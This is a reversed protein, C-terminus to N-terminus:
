ARGTMFPRYNDPPQDAIILVRPRKRVEAKIRKRTAKVGCSTGCAPSAARVHSASRTRAGTGTGFCAPSTPSTASGRSACTCARPEARPEAHVVPAAPARQTVTNPQQREGREQERRGQQPEPSREKREVVVNGKGAPTSPGTNTAWINLAPHLLAQRQNAARDGAPWTLIASCGTHVAM